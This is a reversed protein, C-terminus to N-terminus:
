HFKGCDIVCKRSNKARKLGWWCSVYKKLLSFQTNFIMSNVKGWEGAWPKEGGVDVRWRYHEFQVMVMATMEWKDDSFSSEHLTIEFPFQTEDQFQRHTFILIKVQLYLSFPFISQVCGFCWEFYDIKGHRFNHDYNYKKKNQLFDDNNSKRFIWNFLKFYSVLHHIQIIFM